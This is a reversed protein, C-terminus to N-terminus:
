TTLTAAHSLQRKITLAARMGGLGSLPESPRRFAKPLDESPRRSAQQSAQQSARPASQPAKPADQSANQSGRLLEPPFHAAHQCWTAAFIARLPRWFTGFRIFMLLCFCSCLLKLKVTAIHLNICSNELSDHTCLVSCYCVDVFTNFNQHYSFLNPPTLLVM